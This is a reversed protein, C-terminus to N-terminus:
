QEARISASEAANSITQLWVALTATVATEARLIVPGLSAPTWLAKDFSEREPDSWGGEPGIAFAVSEAPKLASSLPKAGRREDLWIGNSTKLMVEFRVPDAIEPPRLRRSQEAAEHAIRRWREVRKRAGETLGRESRASEVPVIRAVALETGKEVAWEFREFKIL